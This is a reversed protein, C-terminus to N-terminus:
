PVSELAAIAFAGATLAAFSRLSSMRRGKQSTTTRTGQTDYCEKGLVHSM